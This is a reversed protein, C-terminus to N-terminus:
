YDFPKVHIGHEIFELTHYGMEAKTSRMKRIDITRAITKGFEKVQMRIVGDCVFESVTDRTMFEGGEPSDGIFITTAGLESVKSVFIYIFQKTEDGMALSTPMLDNTYKEENGVRTKVPLSYMSSNISLISLSDVVMRRVDKMEYFADGILKFIETNATDIPIKVFRVMGSNELQELDWGFQMAQRKLDSPNQEISVYIGKENRQVAGYYLYYLGLITKGTGPSGCVLVSNGQPIGGQILSDLGEIGFPVREM